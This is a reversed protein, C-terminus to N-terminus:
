RLGRRATVLVEFAPLKKGELFELFAGGGTSIYGVRDAIATSPSPRWRTAAVPSRSPGSSEAIAHPWCRAHRQQVPRIRVRRGPRELVITGAAKSSSPWCQAAPRRPWHRPDHRRGAMDKADKVTARRRHRQIGQRVGRGGPIPVSAGRAAMLDIITSPTPWWTRSRGAVQRDEPRGGAHLYQCHRRWRDPQRGQQGAIKLITLKTPCRRFRGRDGGAPACAPGPGQGACRDRCGAAPRRLRHPRVQRYRPHHSGRPAATGFADNVYVDCLKAMKQALEDSNKKEGKNIRCNELLVVEGPKVLSVEGTGDVWNQM